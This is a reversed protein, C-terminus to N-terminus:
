TSGSLPITHMVMTGARERTWRKNLVKKRIDKERSWSHSSLRNLSTDSSTFFSCVYHVQCSHTCLTFSVLIHGFIHPILHSRVDFKFQINFSFFVSLKGNWALSALWFLLTYARCVNLKVEAMTDPRFRYTLMLVRSTREKRTKM